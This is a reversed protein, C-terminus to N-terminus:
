KRQSPFHFFLFIFLQTDRRILLLLCFYCVSVCVMNLVCLADLTVWNAAVFRFSHMLAGGQGEGRKGGGQRRGGELLAMEIRDAVQAFNIVTPQNIETGRGDSGPEEISSGSGSSSSSTSISNPSRRLPQLLPDSPEVLGQGLELGLGVLEVGFSGLGALSNSQSLSLSLSHTHSLSVSLSLSHFLSLSHTHSLSRTHSLSLSLSPRLPSRHPPPRPQPTPRGHSPAVRRPCFHVQIKFFLVM